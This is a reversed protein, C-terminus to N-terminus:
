KGGKKQPCNNKIWDALQEEDVIDQDDDDKLVVGCNSCQYHSITGGETETKGYQIDGNEGISKVEHTSVCDVQIEELWHDGCNKCTFLLQM